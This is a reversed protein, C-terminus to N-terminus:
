WAGRAWAMGRLVIIAPLVLAPVGLAVAQVWDGAYAAEVAPVGLVFMVILAIAAIM